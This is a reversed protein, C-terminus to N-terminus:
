VGCATLFKEHGFNINVSSFYNALDVAVMARTSDNSIREVIAAIAEFHRETM